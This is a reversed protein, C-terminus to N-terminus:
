DKNWEVDQLGSKLLYYRSLVFFYDSLRNLYRVAREFKSDELAVVRREARRCVTRALHSRASAENGGPLVFATLKPLEENMSDISQELKEIDEEEVYPVEFSVEKELALTSGINFLRNQISKLLPTSGKDSVTLLGIIANLEDVTGYAELRRDAKSVRTGGLLSTSGKDGTKTYIKM